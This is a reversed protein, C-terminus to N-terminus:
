DDRHALADAVLTRDADTVAPAADGRWRRFVAALGALAIVFLAVPLFWVLGTLGDSSPTLLVDDGYRSALYDRIEADSQGETVRRSIEQRIARAATADSDAVSQGLCQPCKISENLGRIRQGETRPGTDDVTGAALAGFLVVLLVFWSVRSANM